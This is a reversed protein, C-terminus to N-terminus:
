LVPAVAQATRDDAASGPWPLSSVALQRASHRTWGPLRAVALIPAFAQAEFGILHFALSAPYDLLPTRGTAEYVAGALAEYVEILYQGRRLGAIMGLAGRMAPVRADDTKDLRYNFGPIRRGGTLAASVWSRANDPIAVENVMELVARGAGGDGSWQLTDIASGVARYPDAAAPRSSSAPAYASDGAYLILATEFAAVIQPEPVKGFTMSLFNAAYGLHERPPVAGLGQRLRQDAGVIAPLVAFLRVARADVTEALADAASGDEALATRLADMPDVTLPQRALSAAVQPALARRQARELRNQAFVQDHTPLEGHWCLYAIEEFSHRRCLEQAHYVTV